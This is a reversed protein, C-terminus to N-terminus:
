FKASVGLTYRRGTTQTKYHREAISSYQESYSDNLNIANFTVQIKKTIDYAMSWDLQGRSKEFEPQDNFGDTTNLYESRWNYALRTAFKKYEFFAIVNYSDKSLDELPLAAGTLIHKTSTESDAYTYNASIGAGQFMEGLFGFTKTAAVEFGEVTGGEGNIPISVSVEEALPAGNDDTEGLFLFRNENDSSIYSEIDKYFIAASFSDNNEGYWEISVDFQSARFPKLFPNGGNGTGDGAKVKVGKSLDVINPRSMVDAGAFRLVLDDSLQFQINASLLVDSYDNEDKIWSSTDEPDWGSSTIDTEVYRIGTNASYPYDLFDGDFNTKFYVANTKEEIDFTTNTENVWDIDSQFEPEFLEPNDWYKSADVTVYQNFAGSFDELFNDPTSITPLDPHDSFLKGNIVKPKRVSKERTASRGAVRVGFEISTLHGAELNYDVDFKVEDSDNEKTQDQLSLNNLLYSATNNLDLANTFNDKKPFFSAGGFDSATLDYQMETNKDLTNVFANYAHEEGHSSNISGNFTWQDGVFYEFGLTTAYTKRDSRQDWGSTTMKAKSLSGALLTNNDSIIANTLNGGNNGEGQINQSATAIDFQNYIGDFYIELNDSPAWQLNSTIGTREQDRSWYQARLKQPVFLPDLEGDGDVDNGMGYGSYETWRTEGTDRRKNTDSYNASIALGFEGISSDWRDSFFASMSPSTEESLDGYEANARVSVRREDSDFARRTKLNITAGLAGETMDATPSKIVEMSSFADPSLDNFQIGRSESDSGMVTQGNMEVRNQAMGRVSVENGEGFDRGIQVGTVRQLAEALNQDPLKGIDEASIVDKIQDASRKNALSRKMSSMIGTVEIREIEEDAKNTSEANAYAIPAMAAMSSCLMIANLAFRNQNQNKHKIQHKM